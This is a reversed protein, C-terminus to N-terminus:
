CELVSLFSEIKAELENWEAEPDSGEVIGVGSYCFVRDHHVLASRIAVAFESHEPSVIGFAGSYWGRQVNELRAIVAQAETRPFGCIAPTPHLTRLLDADRVGAKLTARIPLHRHQIRDLKLIGVEERPPSATIWPAIQAHMFRTVLEHERVLKPDNYLTAEMTQDEDLTSGRRVTGALSETLIERGRRRYLREPTCGMFLAGEREMAFAFSGPNTKCWRGLVRFPLLPASLRLEVRRALVTKRLRGGSIRQLIENIHGRCVTSDLDNIRQTVRTPSDDREARQTGSTRYLLELLHTKMRMFEGRSQALLNVSLHHRGDDQRLELAPLVFRAAPFSSWEGFGNQGSFALGGLFATNHRELITNIQGLLRGHEAASDVVLELAAGIGAISVTRERNQWFIRADIANGQLWSLPDTEPVPESLRLLVGDQFRWNRVEAVLRAVAREIADGLAPIPGRLQM